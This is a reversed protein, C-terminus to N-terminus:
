SEGRKKEALYLEADEAHIYEESPHCPYTSVCDKGNDGIWVWVRRVQPVGRKALEAKLEETTCSRAAHEALIYEKAEVDVALCPALGYAKEETRYADIRLSEGNYDTERIWVRRVQPVPRAKDYDITM